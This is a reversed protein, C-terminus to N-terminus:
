WFEADLKGEISRLNQRACAPCYHLERERERSSVWALAELASADDADPDLTRGCLACGLV